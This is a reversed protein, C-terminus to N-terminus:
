LRAQKGCSHYKAVRLLQEGSQNILLGVVQHGRSGTGGFCASGAAWLALTAGLYARRDMILNALAATNLADGDIKIRRSRREEASNRYSMGQASALPDDLKRFRISEPLLDV